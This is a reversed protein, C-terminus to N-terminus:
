VQRGLFAMLRTQEDAGEPADLAPGFNRGRIAADMPRIKEFAISVLEPDLNDDLGTARALDWTHTLADLVLIGLFTDATMEGFPTKIETDLAGDANAAAELSARAETWSAVPDEGAAERVSRRGGSLGEGTLGSVVFQQVGIVHGAVDVAKWETCPSQAEWRDAPVQRIVRDFGDLARRYRDYNETM